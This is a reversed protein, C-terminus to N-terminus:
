APLGCSAAFSSCGEKGLLASQKAGHLALRARARERDRVRLRLSQIRFQCNFALTKERSVTSLWTVGRVTCILWSGASSPASWLYRRNLYGHVLYWIGFGRGDAYYHGDVVSFTKNASCDLRHQALTKGVELQQDDIVAALVIPSRSPGPREARLVPLSQRSHEPLHPVGESKRRFGEATRPRRTSSGCQESTVSPIRLSVRRVSSNDPSYAPKTGPATPRLEAQAPAERKAGGL